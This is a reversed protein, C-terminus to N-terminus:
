FVYQMPPAFQSKSNASKRVRTQFDWSTVLGTEIMEQVVLWHRVLAFMTGSTEGFSTALGDSFDIRRTRSISKHSPVARGLYLLPLCSGRASMARCGGKAPLVAQCQDFVSIALTRFVDLVQSHYMPDSPFAELFRESMTTTGAKTLARELLTNNILSWFKM